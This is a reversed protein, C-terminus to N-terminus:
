DESYFFRIEETSVSEVQIRGKSTLIEKHHKPVYLNYAMSNHGYSWTIVISYVTDSIMGAYIISNSSRFVGPRVKASEGLRLKYEKSESM